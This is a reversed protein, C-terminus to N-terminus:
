RVGARVSCVPWAGWGQSRQVRKGVVIQQDRTHRNPMGSGGFGHWTSLTFQLGGYFGNGTNIHWDGGSECQAIKDWVSSRSAAAQHHPASKPHGGLYPTLSPSSLRHDDSLLIHWVRPGTVGTVRLGHHRQLREVRARTINGYYGTAPVHLGRAALERQLRVVLTSDAGPHLVPLRQSVPAASAPAPAAVALGGVLAAGAIAGIMTRTARKAPRNTTFGAPQDREGIL